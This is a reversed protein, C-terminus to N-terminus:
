VEPAVPSRRAPVVRRTGAYKKWLYGAVMMLLWKRMVAGQKM